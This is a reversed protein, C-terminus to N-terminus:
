KEFSVSIGPLAIGNLKTSWTQGSKVPLAATLTGTSVLENAQLPPALTQRSLVEILHEVAKIPSGMVNSGQGRELEHDNCSLSIKFTQLDSLVKPGLRDIKVPEGVLLMAHLGCDAVTDAAQFNWNPFHSQVVEFGHAIWDICSLIAASDSGAPPSSGFHVIIEPEIRPEAYQELSYLTNSSKHCSVTSDYVYGWIPNNVGYFSCVEPNTFGIKRGVPSEGKDVRMKHILDAVLYADEIGFNEVRSSVPDIQKCRDQAAKLEQAIKYLDKSKQMIM